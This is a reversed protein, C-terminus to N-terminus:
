PIRSLSIWQLNGWGSSPGQTSPERVTPVSQRGGTSSPHSRGLPCQLVWPGGRRGRAGRQPVARAARPGAPVQARASRRPRHPPRAPPSGFCGGFAEPGTRRTGFCPVSRGRVGRRSVSARASRGPRGPPCRLVPQGRGPGGLPCPLVPGVAGSAGPAVSFCPRGRGPGGRPCPPYWPVSGVAGSARRPVSARASRAEPRGPPCPPYGPVSGVAGSARRPVSARASRAEPRGPPCPAQITEDLRLRCRASSTTLSRARVCRLSAGSLISGQARGSCWGRRPGEVKHRM